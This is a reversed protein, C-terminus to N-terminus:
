LAPARFLRDSRPLSVRCAALAGLHWALVQNSSLVPLGIEAELEELLDLTRLNTCSLFIGDMGGAAVLRKAASKISGPDIRVVNAETDEGFSLALPVELGAQAFATCLPEAVSAVYPSLIGVRRLGLARIAALAASFPDTIAGTRCVGGILARVREPGIMVAGSTCGYGIADFRAGEPFLSAAGTLRHEMAKLAGPTVTDGSHVRSIHLQVQRPDFLRRFDDEITEDARLVILGLRVRRDQTLTYPLSTTM